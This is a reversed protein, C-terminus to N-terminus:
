MCNRTAYACQEDETLFGGTPGSYNVTRVIGNTMIVDIVCFRKEYVDEGAGIAASFTDTIASQAISKKAGLSASSKTKESHDNGSKYSWIETSGEIGKRKPLGMCTFIQERTMGIMKQQVGEADKARQM